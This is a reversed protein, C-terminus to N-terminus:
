AATADPQAEGSAFGSHQGGGHGVKKRKVSERDETRRMIGVGGVEM